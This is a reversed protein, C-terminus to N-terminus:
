EYVYLCHLITLAFNLSYKEQVKNVVKVGRYDRESTKWILLKNGVPFDDM